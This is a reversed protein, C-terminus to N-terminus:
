NKNLLTFVLMQVAVIQKRRVKTQEDAWKLENNQDDWQKVAQYIDNSSFKRCFAECHSLKFLPLRYLSFNQKCLSATNNESLTACVGWFNRFKLSVRNLFCFYCFDSCYFKKYARFSFCSASSHQQAFVWAVLRDNQSEPKKHQLKSNWSSKRIYVYM